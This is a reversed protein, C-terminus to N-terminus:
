RSRRTTLNRRISEGWASNDFSEMVGAGGVDSNQRSHGPTTPTRPPTRAPGVRESSPRHYSTDVSGLRQRPEPPADTPSADFSTRLPSDRAWSSTLNTDIKPIGRSSPGQSPSPTTSARSPNLFDQPETAQSSEEPDEIFIEPVPIAMAPPGGLRSNRKHAIADRFKRSWYMTDFFGIVVNRRISEHVRQLRARRRLFEELRLSRSDEIVNYHALTMLTTTFSVGKDPDASLMVEQYFVEMRQKRMRIEDVPVNRLRASLLDIDIGDVVRRRKYIEGPEVSCDEMLARVTFDGDYIRM